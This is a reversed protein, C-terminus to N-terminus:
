ATRRIGKITERKVNELLRYYDEIGILIINNKIAESVVSFEKSKAMKIFEQPTLPILQIKLPILRIAEEIKDNNEGIIMLDIDSHKTATGKAYSGFLLLIFSSNIKNLRNYLENFDSNKLLKERRECEANFVLQNFNKNFLISSTNGIKKLDIIGAKKLKMVAGHASKYNIKRIKSLKRISFNEEKNEILIKLIRLLENAM